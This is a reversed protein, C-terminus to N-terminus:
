YGGGQVGFYEELTLGSRYIDGAEQGIYRIHWSEPMYGTIPEKGVPYRVIFGYEHAHQALWHVARPEELLNGRADLLDFALGTQHESHGPRASYRDAAAQGDRAVYAWYLSHQTAYSRYGSYSYNVGFGLNRMRNTLRNFAAKATANEGPAYSANLAYKKNVILVPGYKGQITYYNGNYQLGKLQIQTITAGIGTRVNNKSTIYAHVHYKGSQNGHNSLKVTLRYRGDAQRNALYWHLDDRGKADSWVPVEVKSIGEPAFLGSIVVDFRGRHEDINEISLKGEPTKQRIDVWQKASTIFSQNGNTFQYYLHIHYNGKSYQHNRAQVSVRYSDDSRKQAAYWVIDDQGGVDSWVPVAVSKLARSASIGTILIDFNGKQHNVNQIQIKGTSMPEKMKAQFTKVGVMQNRDFVYYLHFQYNGYSFRHNKAHVTLQYSGNEQPAIDYWRLDDQGDEESWVAMKVKSITRSSRVQSVAVTLEGSKDSLLGIDGGLTLPKETPLDPPTTSSGKKGLAYLAVGEQKWGRQGLVDYENVDKTYLHRKLGSHYLRYIPIEGASYYAKGEQRWGRNGLVNYENADKTYLHVRIGSHYLRYVPEGQNYATIWAVGEQRWGRTALTSYENKDMTYLHVKLGDHYLRYLPRSATVQEEHELNKPTESMSTSPEEEIFTTTTNVDVMGGTESSDSVTSSTTKVATSRIPLETTTSKDSAVNSSPSIGEEALIGFPCVLYILLIGLLSGILSCFNKKIM